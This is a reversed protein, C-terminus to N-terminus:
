EEDLIPTYIDQYRLPQRKENMWLGQVVYVVKGKEPEKGGGMEKKIQELEDAEASINSIQKRRLDLQHEIDWFGEGRYNMLDEINLACLDPLNQIVFERPSKSLFGMSGTLGGQVASWTKWMFFEWCAAEFTCGCAMVLGEDVKVKSYDGSIVAPAKPRRPIYRKGEAERERKKDVREQVKSAKAKEKGEDSRSTAPTCQRCKLNHHSTLFLHQMLHISTSGATPAYGQELLVM